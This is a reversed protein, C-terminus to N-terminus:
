SRLRDLTPHEVSLVVLHGMDATELGHYVHLRLAPVMAVSVQDPFRAESGPFRLLIANFASLTRDLPQEQRGLCM